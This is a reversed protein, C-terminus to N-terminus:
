CYYFKFTFETHTERRDKKGKRERKILIACVGGALIEIISFASELCNIGTVVKPLFYIEGGEKLLHLPVCYYNVQALLTDCFDEDKRLKPSLYFTITFYWLFFDESLLSQRCNKAREIALSLRRM